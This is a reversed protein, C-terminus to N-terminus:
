KKSYRLHSGHARTHAFHLTTSTAPKFDIQHKQLKICSQTSKFASKHKPFCSSCFFYIYIYLTPTWVQPQKFDAVPQSFFLSLFRTDDGLNAQLGCWATVFLPYLGPTMVLNLFLFKFRPQLVVPENSDTGVM